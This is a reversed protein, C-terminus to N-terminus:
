RFDISGTQPCVKYQDVTHRLQAHVQPDYEQADLLSGLVGDKGSLFSVFGIRDETSAEAVLGHPQAADFLVLTGPRFLVELGMLPFHLLRAPGSVCWAGLVSAWLPMDHHYNVHGVALALAPDLDSHKADLVIGAGALEAGILQNADRTWNSSQERLSIGGAKAPAKLNVLSAECREFFAPNQLDFVAVRTATLYKPLSPGWQWHYRFPPQTSQLINM